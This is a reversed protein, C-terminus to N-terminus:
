AALVKSVKTTMCNIAECTYEGSDALSVSKILYNGYGVIEDDRYWVIEPEPFGEANCELFLEDCYNSCVWDSAFMDARDCFSPCECTHGHGAAYNGVCYKDGPCTVGKCLDGM